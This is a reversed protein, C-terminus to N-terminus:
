LFRDFPTFTWKEVSPEYFLNVDFFRGTIVDRMFSTMDGSYEGWDQAFRDAYAISWGDSDGDHATTKWYFVHEDGTGWPILGGREPYVPYPIIQQGSDRLEILWDLDERWDNRFEDFAAADQVPSYVYFREGFVGSPFRAMLKKFDSPMAVGLISEVEDWTLRLEAHEHWGLLEALEEDVARKQAM